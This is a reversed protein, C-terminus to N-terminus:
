KEKVIVPAFGDDEDEQLGPIRGNRLDALRVTMTGEMLLVEGWGILVDEAYIDINEGTPRSLPLISGVDLNLLEGFTLTTRDLEARMAIVIDSLGEMEELLAVTTANM